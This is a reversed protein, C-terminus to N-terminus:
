VPLQGAFDHLQALSLAALGAGFVLDFGRVPRIRSGRRHLAMDILTMLLISLGCLGAAAALLAFPWRLLEPSGPHFPWLLLALLACAGGLGSARRITWWGLM